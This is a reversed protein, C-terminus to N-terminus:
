TGEALFLFREQPFLWRRDVGVPCMLLSPLTSTRKRHFRRSGSAAPMKDARKTVIVARNAM